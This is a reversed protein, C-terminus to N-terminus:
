ARIAGVLRIHRLMWTTEKVDPSMRGGIAPLDEDHADRFGFRALLAQMTTASYISRVPEGARRLIYKLFFLFPARTVYVLVLASGAASRQEIVRLTTAVEEPSLYMVVGEWIWTTPRSADHGAAALAEELRDKTFDVPVFRVERAEQRLSASAIREKKARQSDPHDVEFVTADVLEPMRWARGDLGAGLIVVQPAPHARVFDDIVVTRAVMM